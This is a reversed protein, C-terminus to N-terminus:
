KTIQKVGRERAALWRTAASEFGYAADAESNCSNNDKRRPTEQRPQRWRSLGYAPCKVKSPCVTRSDTPRITCGETAIRVFPRQTRLSM